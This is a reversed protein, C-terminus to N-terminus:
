RRRRVRRASRLTPYRMKEPAYAPATGARYAGLPIAYPIQKVPGTQRNGPEPRISEVVRHSTVV